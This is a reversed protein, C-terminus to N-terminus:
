DDQLSSAVGDIVAIAERRADSAEDNRGAAALVDGLADLTKWLQTPNGIERAVDLAARLEREAEDPKDDAALAQGLLRRGKVVNKLSSSREAIAICERAFAAAKETKGRKLHLEGYSHLMHQGYRWLMWVEHPAPNRFIKEVGSYEKEAADLDGRAQLIDGLNLHANSDIEPDLMGLEQAVALARTNWE